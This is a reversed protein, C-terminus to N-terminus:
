EPAGLVYGQGRRTQILKHEHDADIKRRLYGIYVDVVNSSPETAFDYVHDWIEMRTVVHGRRACLYELVAYERASLPIARGARKVTRATLDVELDDILVQTERQGYRRRAMARVRALVEEFAFPKVLYDDAGADLGLVRDAVTDRATLLLVAAPHRQKRLRQLLTLGDLKPLMVDLLIVDYPCSQACALGEEGDMAPDVAHGAERLGQVIARSLPAFDEVVLIRMTPTFM